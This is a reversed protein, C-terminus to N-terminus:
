IANNGLLLVTIAFNRDKLKKNVLENMIQSCGGPVSMAWVKIRGRQYGVHKM